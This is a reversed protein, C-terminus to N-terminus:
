SLHGYEAGSALWDQDEQRRVEMSSGNKVTYRLDFCYRGLLQRKTWEPKLESIDEIDEVTADLQQWALHTPRLRSLPLVVTAYFEMLGPEVLNKFTKSRACSSEQGKLGHQPITGSEVAQKCNVWADKGMRLMAMM